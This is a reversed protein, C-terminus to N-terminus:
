PQEGAQWVTGEHFSAPVELLLKGLSYFYLWMALLGLAIQLAAALGQLRRKSGHLPSRKRSLCAACLVQDEHETVCERCYFRGCGPCRAVAEREAHHWCSQEFLPVM